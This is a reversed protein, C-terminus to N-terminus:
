LLDINGEAEGMDLVPLKPADAGLLGNITAQPASRYRVEAHYSLPGVADAPIVFSYEAIDYGKPRIRRDAIVQTAEPLFTTAEPKDGSKGLVSRYVVAAPDIEGKDDLAGSRYLLKGKSDRVTVDLWMQRVYTLGTPLYHGAGSNIVKIPMRYIGGKTATKEGMFEVTCSHELREEAMKAHPHYGLLATVALNGGVFNHQWIHKRQKGGMAEPAAYGPVDPRATSGTSPFEPTQRMHCDQCTVTTAPDGTNYPGTRWESYTNEIAMINHAHNVDHCMGCFESRTHLESQESGHFPSEADKFPGFKTGPDSNAADGPKNMFAGNGMGASMAVSHCFDCSIGTVAVGELKDTYRAQDDAMYGIPTHCRSCMAVESKEHDNKAEKVYKFYVAKFVPDTWANAMMSGKWQSYIEAHCGSCVEPSYFSGAKHSGPMDPVTWVMNSPATAKPLVWIPSAKPHQKAWASYDAAFAFVPFLLVGVALLLLKM